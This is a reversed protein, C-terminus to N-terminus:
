QSAAGGNAVVIAAAAGARGVAGTGLAVSEEDRERAGVLCSHRRARTQHLGSQVVM